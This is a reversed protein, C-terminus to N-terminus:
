VSVKESDTVPSTAPSRLLAPVAVPQKRLTAPEPAEYVIEAVPHEDDPVSMGRRAAPPTNSAAPLVLGARAVSPVVIVSSRTAAVPVIM